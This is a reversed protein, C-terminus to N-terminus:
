LSVPNISMEDIRQILADGAKVNIKTERMRGGICGELPLTLLKHVGFTLGFDAAEKQAFDAAPRGDIWLRITCKKEVPLPDNIVVLHADSKKTLAYQRELPVRSLTDPSSKSSTSCAAMLAFAVLFISYKM